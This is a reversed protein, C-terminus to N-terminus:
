NDGSLRGLLRKGRSKVSPAGNEMAKEIDEIVSERLSADRTALETLTDLSSVVVIRSKSSLLERLIRVVTATEEDTYELYTMMQALHWQVEQQDILAVEGILKGKFPALLDPRERAIKEAADACRMRILSDDSLIGNFVEDFREPSSLVIDVLEDARGISRHDGGRLMDVLSM